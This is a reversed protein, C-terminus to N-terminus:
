PIEPFGRVNAYDYPDRYVDPRAIVTEPAPVTGSDLADELGDHGYREVKEIRRSPINVKAVIEGEPHWTYYATYTNVDRVEEAFEELDISKRGLTFVYAHIVYGDVSFNRTAFRLATYMPPFYVNQSMAADREVTGATTSIFPTEDRVREYRVLHDILAAETLKGQIEERRITGRTKWWNSLLGVDAVM